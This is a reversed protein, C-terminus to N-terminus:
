RQPRSWRASGKGDKLVLAIMVIAAGAILLLIMPVINRSRPYSCFGSFDLGGVLAPPEVPFLISGCSGSPLLALVVGVVLLALGIILVIRWAMKTGNSETTM